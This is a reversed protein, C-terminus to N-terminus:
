WTSLAQVAQPTATNTLSRPVFGIASPSYEIPAARRRALYTPLSKPWATAKATVAPYRLSWCKPRFTASKSKRQTKPHPLRNTLDVQATYNMEFRGLPACFRRNRNGFIDIFFETEISPSFLLEENLVHQMPVKAVEIQLLGTVEQPMDYVAHASVNLKMGSLTSSLLKSCILFVAFRRKQRIFGQAVADDILGEAYRWLQPAGEAIHRNRDRVRAADIDHKKWGGGRTNYNHLLPHLRDLSSAFLAEPTQRAEFEDWLSRIETAIDPPLLNFIREAAAIEREAKGIHAAEDYVFTDGADIEVLDHILLM